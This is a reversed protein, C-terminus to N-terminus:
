NRQNAPLSYGNLLGGVVNGGIANGIATGLVSPDGMMNWAQNVKAYKLKLKPAAYKSSYYDRGGLIQIYKSLPSSDDMATNLGSFVDADMPITVISSLDIVSFSVDVALPRGRKDFGMSGVGREITLNDILGPNINMIGKIFASCIMPSTHGAKGVQQAAAGSILMALPIYIDQLTAIPHGYPGGLRIKFSHRQYEFSSEDPMKPIDFVGGGTLAVGINSLGFSIGELAGMTFDKVANVVTTMTEGVLNGGAMSFRLDKAKKGVGNITDKIPIDKTSNSFSETSSGVYEVRFTASDAGHRASSNIYDKLETLYSKNEALVDSTLKVTKDQEISSTTAALSLTDTDNEMKTIVGENNNIMPPTETFIKGNAKHFKFMEDIYSSWTMADQRIVKDAYTYVKGGGNAYYDREITKQDNILVQTKNAVAFVDIYGEPALLGPMVLDLEEQFDTTLRMPMGIDGVASAGTAEPYFLGLEVGIQSAIINVSRWYKYMSPDLRYFNFDSGASLLKYAVVSGLFLAAGFVPFAMFLAVVGVSMGVAKGAYYALMSRGTNAVVSTGYDLANIAYSLLSNFKPDGFTLYLIQENDDFMESYRRGMGFDMSESLYDYRDRGSLRGSIAVDASPTFGYRTNIGLNGGLSTDTYKLYANSWFANNRDDDGLLTIDILYANRLWDKDVATLGDRLQYGDEANSM